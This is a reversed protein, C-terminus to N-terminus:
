KLLRGFLEVRYNQYDNIWNNRDQGTGNLINDVNNNIYAQNTGAVPKWGSFKVEVYIHLKIPVGCRPPPVENATVRFDWRNGGRGYSNGNKFAQSDDGSIDVKGKAIDKIFENAALTMQHHHTGGLPSIQEAMFM